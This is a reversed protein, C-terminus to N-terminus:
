KKADIFKKYESRTEIDNKFNKRNSQKIKKSAEDLDGNM